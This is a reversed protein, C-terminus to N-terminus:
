DSNEPEVSEKKNKYFLSKCKKWYLRLIVLLGSVGGVVLQILMAGAGPDIYAQAADPLTLLLVAIALYFM